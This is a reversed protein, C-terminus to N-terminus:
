GARRRLLSWARGWASEIAGQLVVRHCCRKCVLFLRVAPPARVPGGSAVAPFKTRMRCRGRGSALAGSPRGREVIAAVRSCGCPLARDSHADALALAQLLRWSPTPGKSRWRLRLRKRLSLSRRLRRRCRASPATAKAGTPEDAGKQTAPFTPGGQPTARKPSGQLCRASTSRPNRTVPGVWRDRVLGHPQCRM